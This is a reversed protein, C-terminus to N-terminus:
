FAALLEEAQALKLQNVTASHLAVLLDIEKKTVSYFYDQAIEYHLFMLSWQVDDSWKYHSRFDDTTPKSNELMAVATEIKAIKAKLEAIKM